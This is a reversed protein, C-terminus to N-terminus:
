HFQGMVLGLRQEATHAIKHARILRAELRNSLELELEGLSIVRDVIDLAAHGKLTLHM